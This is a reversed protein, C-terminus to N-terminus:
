SDSHGNSDVLSRGLMLSQSPPRPGPVPHALRLPAEASRAEGAPGCCSSRGAPGSGCRRTGAGPGTDQGAGSLIWPGRLQSRRHGIAATSTLASQRSSCAEDM